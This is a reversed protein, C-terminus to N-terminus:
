RLISLQQLGFLAALGGFLILLLILLPILFNSTKPKPKARRKQHPKKGAVGRPRSRNPTKYEPTAQVSEEPDVSGGRFIIRTTASNSDENFIEEVVRVGTYRKGEDAKRAEHLVLGRDDFISNIKWEGGQYIQLEFSKM